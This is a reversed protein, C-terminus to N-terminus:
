EEKEEGKEKRFSNIFTHFAMLFFTVPVIILATASQIEFKGAYFAISEMMAEDKIFKYSAYFLLLSIILTFKNAAIESLKRLKDSHIKFVIDLAFHKSYRSALIAGIFGSWLVMHRLVPDLWVIGYNFFLRLVVQLFSLIVMFFVFAIVLFKEGKVLCNELKLLYKM